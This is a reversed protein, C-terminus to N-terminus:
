GRGKAAARAQQWALTRRGLETAEPPCVRRWVGDMWGDEYYRFRSKHFVYEGAALAGTLVYALFGTYFAWAEDSAALALAAGVAANGAFFVCWVKTVFRCYPLLFDPFGDHMASAFQEVISLGGRLSAAFTALLWLSTLSPLLKLTAPDNTAAAALTVAVLLGFRKLLLPLVRSGGSALTLALLAALLVAGITRASAHDLGTVLLFPYAAVLVAALAVGVGRSARGAARNGAADGGPTSKGAADDGAAGTM